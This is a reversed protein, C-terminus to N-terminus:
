WYVDICAYKFGAVFNLSPNSETCIQAYGSDNKEFKINGMQTDGNNVIDGIAFFYFFINM